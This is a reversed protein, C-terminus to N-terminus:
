QERADVRWGVTTAVATLTATAAEDPTQPGTECVTHVTGAVQVHVLRGNSPAEPPIVAGPGTVTSTCRNEVFDAWAADADADALKQNESNMRGTVLPAVADIWATAPKRWSAARYAVLWDVAVQLPGAPAFTDTPADAASRDPQDTHDPGDTRGNFTSKPPPPPTHAVTNATGLTSAPWTNSASTTAASCGGAALGAALILATARRIRSFM